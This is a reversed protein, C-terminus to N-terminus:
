SFRRKVFQDLLLASPSNLPWGPKSRLEKDMWFQAEALISFGNITKLTKDFLAEDGNFLEKVLQYRENLSIGKRLDKIPGGQMTEALMPKEDRLRDNLSTDTIIVENVEKHIAPAAAPVTEKSIVPALAPATEKLGEPSVASVGLNGTPLLVSVKSTGLEQHPRLQGKQLEFQLLSVTNLLTDVSANATRQELLTQLLSDIRDM